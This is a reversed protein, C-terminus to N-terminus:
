RCRAPLSLWVRCIGSAVGVFRVWSAWVFCGSCGVVPVLPLVPGCTMASASFNHVLRTCMRWGVRRLGRLWDGRQLVARACGMEDPAWGACGVLPALLLMPGGTMTLLAHFAPACSDALGKAAGGHVCAATLTFREVRRARRAGADRSFGLWRLRRAPGAGAGAWRDHSSPTSLPHVHTPWGRRPGGRVCAATPTFRDM